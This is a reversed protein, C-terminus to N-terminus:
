ADHINVYPETVTIKGASTVHGSLLGAPYDSGLSDVKGPLTQNM